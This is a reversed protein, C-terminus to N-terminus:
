LLAERKYKYVWRELTPVPINKQESIKAFSKNVGITKSMEIVADIAEAKEEESYVKKSKSLKHDKKHKSVWGSLTNPNINEKEAIELTAEKFGIDESRKIVLDIAKAKEEESYTKHSKPLNYHRKYKYVLRELVGRNIKKQKAVKASAKKVGIKKSMEIALDIAEAKQEKTYTM